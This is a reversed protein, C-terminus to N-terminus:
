PSLHVNILPLLRLWRPNNAAYNLVGLQVGNLNRSYNVIGIALGTHRKNVREFRLKDLRIGNLAGATIGKVEPASVSVGGLAVGTISRGAGVAFLAGTVGTIKEGAGAM